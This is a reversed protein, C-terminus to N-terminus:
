NKIIRFTKILTGKEQISLLYSGEALDKMDLRTKSTKVSQSELLKGQIDYLQYTLSENKYNDIKLTLIEQTPNPYALLELKIVAIEAGLLAVIDYTQQVGQAISGTKKIYTTYFVQGMAYSLNGGTGVLQNGSTSFGEQAHLSICVSFSIFIIFLKM